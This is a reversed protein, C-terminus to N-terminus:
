PIRTVLPKHTVACPNEQHLDTLVLGVAQEETDAYVVSLIVNPTRTIQPGETSTAVEFMIAVAWAPRQEGSVKVDTTGPVLLAMSNDCFYEVAGVRILAIMDNLHMCTPRWEGNRVRYTNGEYEDPFDTRVKYDAGAYHFYRYTPNMNMIRTPDTDPTSTNQNM